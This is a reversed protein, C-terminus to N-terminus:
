KITMYDILKDKLKYMSTKVEIETLFLENLYLVPLLALAIKQRDNFNETVIQRYPQM